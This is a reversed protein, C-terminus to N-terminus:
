ADEGSVPVTLGPDEQGRGVWFLTTAAILLILAILMWIAPERGAMRPRSPAEAPDSVYPEFGTPM